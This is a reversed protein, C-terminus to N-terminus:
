VDKSKKDLFEKEENTLSDYGSMSIKDLIEDMDLQPENSLFSDNIFEFSVLGTLPPISDSVEKNYSLQNEITMKVKVIETVMDSINMPVIGSPLRNTITLNGMKITVNVRLKSKELALRDEYLLNSAEEFSKTLEEITNKAKNVFFGYSYYAKIKSRDFKEKIIQNELVSIWNSIVDNTLLENIEAEILFM